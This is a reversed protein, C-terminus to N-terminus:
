RRNQPFCSLAIHFHVNLSDVQQAFEHDFKKSGPSAREIFQTILTRDGNAASIRADIFEVLTKRHEEQTILENLEPHKRTRLDIIDLVQARSPVALRAIREASPDTKRTEALRRSEGKSFGHSPHVSEPIRREQSM